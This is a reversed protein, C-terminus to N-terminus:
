SEDNKSIKKMQTLTIPSMKLNKQAYTKVNKRDQLACLEQQLENVQKSVVEFQQELRQKEYLLETVKNRKHIQLLIFGINAVIVATLFRNRKM